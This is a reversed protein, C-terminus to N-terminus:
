SQALNILDDRKYLQSFHKLLLAKYAMPLQTILKEARSPDDLNVEICALLAQVQDRSLKLAKAALFRARVTNKM